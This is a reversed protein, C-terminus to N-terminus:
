KCHQALLDNALASGMYKVFKFDECAGQLDKQKLKKKGDEIRRSLYDEDYGLTQKLELAREETIGPKRGLEKDRYYNLVVTTLDTNSQYAAIAAKIEEKSKGVCDSLKFSIPTIIMVTTDHDSPVTWRGSSMRILRLAEQDLDTGIGNRVESYYVVGKKNLKFAISVTGDICNSLSYKPYIKNNNIFSELGGKLTPQAYVGLGCFILLM